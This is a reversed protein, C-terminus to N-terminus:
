QPGRRALHRAVVAASKYVFAVYIAVCVTNFLFTM